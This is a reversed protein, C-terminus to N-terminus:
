LLYKDKINGYPNGKLIHSYCILGLKYGLMLAYQYEGFQEGLMEEPALFSSRQNTILEKIRTVKYTQNLPSITLLFLIGTM